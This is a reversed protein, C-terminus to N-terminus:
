ADLRRPAGALLRELDDIGIPKAIHRDFGAKRTLAVDEPRAYGSLAVLHIDRLDDSARMARAVAFGDMGDPLGLDCIVIEPQFARALALGTPGDGATQVEHGSLSLADQLSMAADENDEIILVRRHSEGAPEAPAAAVAADAALPLTLTVETGRGAGTSALAITGGHLEVLGRAMALGLGLGGRSRDLSQPAQSFPEFLHPLLEPAIGVGTDRVSLVADRDKAGLTVVVLGDSPTFKEANGLVNSLVQHLRAADGRVWLPGPAIQSDLRLGSAELNARYDDTARRVLETLDVRALQLRIKGRNIRTVDLLDDVLRALHETQRAIIGLARRAQDRDPSRHLLVHVSNRIPGLPNRLEHSLTALFEDKRWHAERLAAETRVLQDQRAKAETVDEFAVLVTPDAGEIAAATLHLHRRPNTLTVDATADADGRLARHLLGHFQDIEAAAIFAGLRLGILRVRERGLLQAGTLNLKRIVGADSLIVYGIPAFDFLETYQHLSAELEARTNRLEENQMELETRHVELDHQLHQSDIPADPGSATRATRRTPAKRRLGVPKQKM